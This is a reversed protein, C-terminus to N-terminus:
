RGSEKQCESVAEDLLQTAMVRAAPAEVHQAEMLMPMVVRLAASRLSELEAYPVWRGLTAQRMFATAGDLEYRKIM